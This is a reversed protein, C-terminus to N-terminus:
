GAHREGAATALAMTPVIVAEAQELVRRQWCLLRPDQQPALSIEPGHLSVVLAWRRPLAILVGVPLCQGIPLHVHLVDAGVARLATRLQGASRLLAAVSRPRRWDPFDLWAIRHIPRGDAGIRVGGQGAMEALAMDLGQARLGRDLRHIVTETGGIADLDGFHVQLVKM